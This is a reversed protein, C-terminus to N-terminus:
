LCIYLYRKNIKHSAKGLKESAKSAFISTLSKRRKLKPVQKDHMDDNEHINASEIQDSIFVSSNSADNSADKKITKEEDSESSKDSDEESDDDSDDESNTKLEVKAEESNAESIINAGVDAVNQTDESASVNSVAPTTVSESENEVAYTTRSRSRESFASNNPPPAARRGQALAAASRRVGAARPTSATSSDRGSEEDGGASKSVPEIEEVSGGSDRGSEAPTSDAPRSSDSRRGRADEAPTKSERTSRIPPPPPAGGMRGTKPTAPLPKSRVSAKVSTNNNANNSDAAIAGPADDKLTADAVTDLKLGSAPAFSEIKSWDLVVNEDDDDSEEVKKSTAINVKPSPWVFVSQQPSLGGVEGEDDSKISLAAM